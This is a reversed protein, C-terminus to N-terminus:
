PLHYLCKCIVFYYVLLFLHYAQSAFYFQLSFGQHNFITNIRGDYHIAQLTLPYSLILLSDGGAYVLDTVATNSLGAGKYYNIFKYGDFKAIGFDTGFWMFGDGDQAAAYVNDIPLGDHTTYQSYRFTQAFSFIPLLFIILLIKIAKKNAQTM